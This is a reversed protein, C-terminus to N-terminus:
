DVTEPPDSSEDGAGDELAVIVVEFQDRDVIQGIGLGIGQQEGIVRDM